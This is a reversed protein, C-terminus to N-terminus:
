SVAKKTAKKGLRMSGVGTFGAKVKTKVKMSRSTKRPSVKPKIKM